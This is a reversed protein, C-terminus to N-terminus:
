CISGFIYDINQLVKTLISHLKPVMNITIEYRLQSLVNYKSNWMGYKRLYITEITIIKWRLKNHINGIILLLITSDNKM